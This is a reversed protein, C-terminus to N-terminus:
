HTTSSGHQYDLSITGLDQNSTFFPGEINQNGRIVFSSCEKSVEFVVVAETSSIISTIMGVLLSSTAFVIFTAWVLFSVTDSSTKHSSLFFIGPVMLRAVSLSSQKQRLFNAQILSRPMARPTTVDLALSILNPSNGDAYGRAVPAVSNM